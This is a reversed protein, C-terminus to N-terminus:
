TINVIAKLYCERGKDVIDTMTDETYSGAFNCEGKFYDWESEFSDKDSIDITFQCYNSGIGKQFEMDPNREKDVLVVAVRLLQYRASTPWFVQLKYQIAVYELELDYDFKLCSLL